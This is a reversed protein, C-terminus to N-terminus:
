LGGPRWLSPVQCRRTCLQAERPVKRQDQTMVVFEWKDSMQQLVSKGSFCSKADSVCTPFGNGVRIVLWSCDGRVGGVGTVRGDWLVALPRQVSRDLLAARPSVLM